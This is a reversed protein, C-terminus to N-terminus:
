KKGKINALFTSIKETVVQQLDDLNSMEDRMKKRKDSIFSSLNEELESFRKEITEAKEAITSKIIKANSPSLGTAKSLIKVQKELDYIRKELEEISSTKKKLVKKVSSRNLTQSKASASEITKFFSAKYHRLKNKSFESFEEYLKQNSAKPNQRFFDFVKSRLSSATTKPSSKPANKPPVPKNKQAPKKEQTKKFKSKYNRLTNERVNPFKAYLKANDINPNKELFKIVQQAISDAM